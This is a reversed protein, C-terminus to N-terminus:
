MFDIIFVRIFGWGWGVGESKGWGGMRGCLGKMRKRLCMGLSVVCDYFNLYLIM